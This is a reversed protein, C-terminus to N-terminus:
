RKDDRLRLSASIATNLCELNDHSYNRNVEELALIMDKDTLKYWEKDDLNYYYELSIYKAVTPLIKITELLLEQRTRYSIRKSRSSNYSDIISKIYEMYKDIDTIDKDKELVLDDEMKKNVLKKVVDEQRDKKAKLYLPKYRYWILQVEAIVFLAIVIKIELSM